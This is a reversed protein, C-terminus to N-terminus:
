LSGCCRSRPTPAGLEMDFGFRELISSGYLRDENGADAYVKMVRLLDTADKDVKRDTWAILKLLALGPLSVVPIILDDAVSVSVAAALADEFGAVNIVTDLDRPWRIEKDRIAVGGFPIIDVPVGAPHNSGFFLRHPVRDFPKFLGSRLISHLVVSFKEWSEVAIAFDVDVTARLPQNGYVHFLLLDRATAGVLMYPCALERLVPDITKLIEITLSDVPRDTKLSLPKLSDNMYSSSQKKM